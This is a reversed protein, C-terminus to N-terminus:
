GSGLQLLHQEGAERPRDLEFLAVRSTQYVRMTRANLEELLEAIRENLSDLSYHTENRLRALIWREAILVAAEVKAKDRPRRPRAPLVAAEYHRALEALHSAGFANREAM